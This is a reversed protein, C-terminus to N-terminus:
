VTVDVVDGKGKLQSMDSQMQTRHTDLLVVPAVISASPAAEPAAMKQALQVRQTRSTAARGNVAGVRM